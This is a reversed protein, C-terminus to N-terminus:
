LIIKCKDKKYTRMYISRTAGFKQCYNRVHAKLYETNNLRGKYGKNWVFSKQCIRCREYTALKNQHIIRLDHPVGRYRCGLDRLHETM